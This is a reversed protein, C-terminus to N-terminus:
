REVKRIAKIEIDRVEAKEAMALMLADNILNAKAVMPLDDDVEVEIHTEVRATAHVTFVAMVRREMSDDELPDRGALVVISFTATLSPSADM